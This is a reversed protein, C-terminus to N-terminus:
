FPAAVNHGAGWHRRPHSPSSGALTVVLRGNDDEAAMRVLAARKVSGFTNRIDLAPRHPRVSASANENFGLLAVISGAASTTYFRNTPNKAWKETATIAGTTFCTVTTRGSNGSNISRPSRQRSPPGAAALAVATDGSSTRRM